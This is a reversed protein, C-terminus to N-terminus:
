GIPRLIAKCGGCEATAWDDEFTYEVGKNPCNTEECKFKSM